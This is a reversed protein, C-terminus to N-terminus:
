SFFTWLRLWGDMDMWVGCDSGNRDFSAVVGEIGVEDAMGKGGIVKVRM